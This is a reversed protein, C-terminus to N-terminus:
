SIRVTVPSVCKSSYGKPNTYLVTNLTSHSTHPTSLLGFGLEIKFARRSFQRHVLCKYSTACVIASKQFPQSFDFIDRRNILSRLKGSLM